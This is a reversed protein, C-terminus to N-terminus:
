EKSASQCTDGAVGDRENLTHKTVLEGPEVQLILESVAKLEEFTFPASLYGNVGLAKCRAGDGRQGISTTVLVRPTRKPFFNLARELEDFGGKELDFVLLDPTSLVAREALQQTSTFSLTNVEQAKFGDMWAKPCHGGLHWVQKRKWSIEAVTKASREVSPLDIYFSFLSGEGLRSRVKVRGGMSEVLHKCINLGLGTGGFRSMITPDAQKYPQFIKGLSNESIGIGTDAVEFHCQGDKERARLEVHGKETFKVANSLLNGLIQRLRGPDGSVTHPIDPDLSSRVEVEKDRVLIRTQDLVSELLTPLNFQSTNLSVSGQKLKSYDLIDGILTQIGASSDEIMQIYRLTQEENSKRKVFQCAMKIVSMPSRMDHTIRALLDHAKKEQKDRILARVLVQFSEKAAERTSFKVFDGGMEDGENDSIVLVLPGGKPWLETVKALAPQTPTNLLLVRCALKSSLSEFELLTLHGPQASKFSKALKTEDSVILLESVAARAESTSQKRNRSKSVKQLSQIKM